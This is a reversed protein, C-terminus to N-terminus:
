KLEASGFIVHAKDCYITVTDYDEVKVDKLDFTQEKKDYDVADIKMGKEIDNGKTLYVHLDPGKSSKFDTLMLKNDKITAKGEVMEKNEGKFMGSKMMMNDKQEMDMDKEKEDAKTEQKMDDKKEDMNKCAGLLLTAALAGGALFFKSKM